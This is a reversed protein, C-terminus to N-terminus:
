RSPAFFAFNRSSFLCSKIKVERLKANKAGERYDRNQPEGAFCLSSSSLPPM